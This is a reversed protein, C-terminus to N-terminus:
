VRYLSSPVHRPDEVLDDRSQPHSDYHMHVVEKKRLLVGFIPHHLSTAPILCVKYTRKEAVVCGKRQPPGCAIHHQIMGLGDGACKPNTCVIRKCAGRKPELPNSSPSYYGRQVGHQAM